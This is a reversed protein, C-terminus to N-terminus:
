RTLALFISLTVVSIITSFLIVNSTIAAERRYHEALMFPGTGTPLAALLAASDALLPPLRFVYVALLWTVLPQVILKVSVLFSIAKVSDREIRRPQALFSTAAGLAPAVLLPNRILSRLVKWILHLPKKETQLGIEILIIAFAFTICVTIIIAITTAALVGSGFAIMSLPIGMYGTNPYAANLGDLATDALPLRGRLRVLFPLAFAVASSLLFVAIFGPQWLESGHTNAMIDFLLAPLALYVVFRNLEAIAHPGLIKLKFAGWGSFILAFVPLVVILTTLM